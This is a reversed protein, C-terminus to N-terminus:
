FPNESSDYLEMLEPVYKVEGFTKLITRNEKSDEDYTHMVDIKFDHEGGYLSEISEIAFRKYSVKCVYLNYRNQEDQHNCLYWVLAKKDLAEGLFIEERYGNHELIFRLPTSEAGYYAGHVVVDGNGALTAKLVYLMESKKLRGSKKLFKKAKQLFKGATISMKDIIQIDHTYNPKM